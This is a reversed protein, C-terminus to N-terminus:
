YGPNQEIQPTKQLETFPIPYLQDTTQWDGGKQTTTLSMIGEINDNRKLDLWRHGWETFLESRREQIIYSLIASSDTSTIDLLGARKRINNLDEKSGDINKQHLRAESRILYIEALRFVTSYEQTPTNVNGIKYKFPYYYTISNVTISNTWNTLRLDNLQFSNIFEKRLYVPYQSSPGSSPLIFLKGEGTNSNTGTGIPQLQWIAETSNKKFVDSLASLKFLTNENLIETAVAEARNWDKVYLYARALLAKAVWKNPRIKEISGNPYPTLADAKVYKTKLLNQAENLDAIISQFVIDKPTRPSSMNTKWETSSILPIDGFLNVLYFNCFARIFMAEGLLQEMVPKSMSKSSRIGEIASNAMFLTTYFNSWYDASTTNATSSLQNKYYNSYVLNNPDLPVLEDASLSAFLSLSTIGGLRFSNINDQSIKTYIGTLASAATADSNFVLASNLNDIPPEVEILKKCDVFIIAIIFTLSYQQIQKLLSSM